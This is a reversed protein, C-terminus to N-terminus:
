RYLIFALCRDQRMGRSALHYLAETAIVESYTSVDNLMAELYFDYIYIKM